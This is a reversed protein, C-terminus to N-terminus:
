MTLSSINQLFVCHFRNELKINDMYHLSYSLKTGIVGDRITRTGRKSIDVNRITLKVANENSKVRLCLQFQSFFAASKMSIAVPKNRKVKSITYLLALSPTIPSLSHKTRGREM